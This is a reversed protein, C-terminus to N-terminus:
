STRRFKWPGCDLKWSITSPITTPLLHKKKLEKIKPKFFSPRTYKLGIQIASLQVDENHVEKDGIVVMSRSTSNSQNANTPISMQKLPPHHLEDGDNERTSMGLSDDLQDLSEM